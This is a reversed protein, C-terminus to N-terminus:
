DSVVAPVCDDFAQLVGSSSLKNSSALSRQGLLVFFVPGAVDEPVLDLCVPRAVTKPLMAARSQQAMLTQSVCACAKLDSQTYGM